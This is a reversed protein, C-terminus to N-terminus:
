LGPVETPIDVQEPLSGMRGRTNQGWVYVQGQETVCATYSSQCSISNIIKKIKVLTPIM